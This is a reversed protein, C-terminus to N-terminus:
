QSLRLDAIMKILDATKSRIGDFDGNEMSAQSILSSGMGVASAGAKFWSEMNEKDVGGTPMFFLDPFIVKMSKIFAPGVFQAPFIKVFGPGSAQVQM